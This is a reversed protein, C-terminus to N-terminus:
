NAEILQQFDNQTTMWKLFRIDLEPWIIFVFVIQLFLRCRDHTLDNLNRCFAFDPQM